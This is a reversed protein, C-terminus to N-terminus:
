PAMRKSRCPVEMRVSSAPAPALFHVPLLAASRATIGDSREPADSCASPDHTLMPRARRESEHPPVRRARGMGWRNASPGEPTIDRLGSDRLSVQRCCRSRTAESRTAVKPSMPRSRQLYKAREVSLTREVDAIMEVHTVTSVHQGGGIAQLIRACKVSFGVVSSWSEQRVQRRIRFVQRSNRPMQGGLDPDTRPRGAPTALGGDPRRLHGTEEM